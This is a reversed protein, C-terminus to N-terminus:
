YWPRSWTSGPESARGRGRRRREPRPAQLLGLDFGRAGREFIAAQWRDIQSPRSPITRPVPYAWGQRRRDLNGRLILNGRLDLNSPLL